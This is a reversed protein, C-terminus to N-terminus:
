QDLGAHLPAQEAARNLHEAGLPVVLLVEALDDVALQEAAERHGLGPVARVDLVQVGGRGVVPLRALEDDVGRVRLGALLVDAVGRPVAPHRDHEGLQDGAVLLGAHVGEEHRQAVAVAPGQGAHLDAVVAALGAEVADVVSPQGEVM